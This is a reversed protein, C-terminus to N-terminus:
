LLVRVFLSADILGVHVDPAIWAGPALELGLEIPATRFVFDLGFPVRVGAFLDDDGHCWHHDRVWGCRGRSEGVIGGVGLYLDLNLSREQALRALGFLYDAHFRLGPGTGLAFDIANTGGLWHKVSFATPDGIMAGLGWRSPSYPKAAEAPAAFTLVLLLVLTSIIRM